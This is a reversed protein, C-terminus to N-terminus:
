YMSKHFNFMVNISMQGFSSDNTLTKDENNYAQSFRPYVQKKDGKCTYFTITSWGIIVLLSLYEDEVSVAISLM